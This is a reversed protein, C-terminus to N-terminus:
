KEFVFAGHSHTNKSDELTTATQYLSSSTRFLSNSKSTSLELSKKSSGTTDILWSRTSPVMSKRSSDAATERSGGGYYQNRWEHKGGGGENRKEEDSISLKKNKAVSENSGETKTKETSGASTTTKPQTSTATTGTTERSGSTKGTTTEKSGTKEASSRKPKQKPPSSIKEKSPRDVQEASKPMIESSLPRRAPPDNTNNQAKDVHKMNNNSASQTLANSRSTAVPTLEQGKIDFLKQQHQMQIPRRPTKAKAAVYDKAPDCNINKPPEKPAVIMEKEEIKGGGGGIGGDEENGQKEKMMMGNMQEKEIKTPEVVNNLNNMNSNTQMKNMQNKQALYNLKAENEQKMRQETVIKEKMDHLRKRMRRKYLWRVTATALFCFLIVLITFVFLVTVIYAYTEIPVCCGYSAFFFSSKKNTQEVM